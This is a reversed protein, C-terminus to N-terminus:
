DEIEMDGLKIRRRGVESWYGDRGKILIKVDEPISVTEAGFREIFNKHDEQNETPLRFIIKAM